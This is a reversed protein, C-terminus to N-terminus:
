WRLACVCGAGDGELCESSETCGLSASPLVGRDFCPCAGLLRSVGAGRNREFPVYLKILPTPRQVLHFFKTRRAQVRCRFLALSEVSFSGGRWECAFSGLLCGCQFRATVSALEDHQMRSSEREYAVQVSNCGDRLQPFCSRSFNLLVLISNAEGM